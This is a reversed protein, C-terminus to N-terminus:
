NAKRFGLFNEKALNYYDALQVIVVGNAGKEGYIKKGEKSSLVTVFKVHKQDISRVDLIENKKPDLEVSRLDSKLIYLAKYMPAREKRTHDSANATFNSQAMSMQISAALM